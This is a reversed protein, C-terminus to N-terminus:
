QSDGTGFIHDFMVPELQRGVSNLAAAAKELSRKMIRFNKNFEEFVQPNLATMPNKQNESVLNYTSYLKGHTFLADLMWPTVGQVIVESSPERQIVHLDALLWM